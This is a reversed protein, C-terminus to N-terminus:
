KFVPEMIMSHETAFEKVLIPDDTVVGIAGSDVLYKMDHKTNVVWPISPVGRKRLHSLVPGMILRAYRLLALWTPKPGGYPRAMEWQEYSKSLYPPQFLDGELSMFPLLGLPFGIFIKMVESKPCTFSAKPLAIKMKKFEVPCMVAIVVKDEKGSEKIIRIVNEIFATNHYKVEVLFHIGELKLVETLHPFHPDHSITSKKMIGGLNFHMEVEDLPHPFEYHCLECVLEDKGCTRTFEKDHFVVVDNDKTPQIDFEIFEAGHRVSFKFADMTNEFNYRPGGRHIIRVFKNEAMAKRIIPMRTTQKSRILQPYFFLVWSIAQFILFAIFIEFFM